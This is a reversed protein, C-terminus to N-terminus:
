PILAPAQIGDRIVNQSQEMLARIAESGIVRQEAPLPEETFQFMFGYRQLSVEVADREPMVLTETQLTRFTSDVEFADVRIAESGDRTDIALLDFIKRTKGGDLYSQKARTLLLLPSGGPQNVTVGWPGSLERTWSVKQQKLDVFFLPGDVGVHEVGQMLHVVAADDESEM